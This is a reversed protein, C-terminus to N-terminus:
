ARIFMPGIVHLVFDTSFHALMAAELGRKWCLYGCMLSVLGNISFLAILLLPTIPMIVKASPLHGLVFLVGIIVNGIWFIRPSTQPSRQRAIKRLGWLVLSLAFLRALVEENIAGYVCALLRKWVPLAAEAAVPWAPIRSLFFTYYILLSLAGAVVGTLLPRVFAGNPLSNESRYLWRRLIPMEIGVKPAVKLGLAILAAFLLATQMLQVAILIPLPMPLPGAAILKRYLAFILPLIGAMGVVSLFLLVWFIRWPYRPPTTLLRSPTSEM